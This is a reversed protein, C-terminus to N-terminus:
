GDADSNFCVQSAVSTQAQLKILEADEAKLSGVCTMLLLSPM